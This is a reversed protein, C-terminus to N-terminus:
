LKGHQIGRRQQAIRRNDVGIVQHRDRTSVIGIHVFVPEFGARAKPGDGEHWQEIDLLRDLLQVTRDVSESEHPGKHWDRAEAQQPFPAQVREIGFGLTQPAQDGHMPPMRRGFIQAVGTEDLPVSNPKRDGVHDM